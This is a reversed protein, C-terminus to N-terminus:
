EALLRPSTLYAAVILANLADCDVEPRTATEHCRKGSGILLRAPDQLAASSFRRQCSSKINVYGFPVEVCAVPCGDHILERVDDGCERMRVFWERAMSHLQDPRENLWVDIDRDREVAGTLRLIGNM